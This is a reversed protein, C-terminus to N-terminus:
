SVSESRSIEDSFSDLEAPAVRVGLEDFRRSLEAEIQARPHQHMQAGVENLIHLFAGAKEDGVDEVFRPNLEFHTGRHREREARAGWDTGFMSDGADANKPRAEHHHRTM